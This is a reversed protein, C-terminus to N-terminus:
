ATTGGDVVLMQGTIALAADSLLFAVAAAVDGPAIGKPLSEGSRLSRLIDEPLSATMDTPVFGPVVANVRIHRKGMERALCRTLALVGSKSAAYAAHGAVGHLASLSSINVIAGRRRTAMGRVVERCLRFVGGLNVDILEDWADDSTLGLLSARHVGANNALAVIPGMADEVEEVLSAPRARDRLDLHFARARNGTAMEVERALFENGCWTFAVSRGEAVLTEVIARGIGRSGGTVLSSEQAM